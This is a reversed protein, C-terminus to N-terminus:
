LFFMLFINILYKLFVFVFKFVCNIWNVVSLMWFFEVQNSESEEEM